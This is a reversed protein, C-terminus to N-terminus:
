SASFAIRHITRRSLDPLNGEGTLGVVEFYALPSGQIEKLLPKLIMKPQGPENKQQEDTEIEIGDM